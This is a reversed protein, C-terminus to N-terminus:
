SIANVPIVTDYVRETAKKAEQDWNTRITIIALSLTQVALACIIGLWLGKGGVHLVFALLVASPIGVLYYSGLNVYAGIKQWGCGRAIGSLVCQLGDLFSSVAILPVVNAVYEVVEQENSYAYGWVNRILILITALLLGEIVAITMVVCGALKAAAPRGAGLENSVRTSVFYLLFMSIETVLTHMRISLVSTELKPNPLLGSLLVVMEFSWLELCVMVTSPIALKLFYPINHFALGSFGTWTKSSSSSFKVYLILILANIWYSISNAVAAGRTGLGIKFVMLWCLPIHSLASIGSSMMMPFVVNQTTLFRNLCQVLGHAFLCPILCKAYKGAEASIQADQGLLKLIEGTNAWIVALPISVLSLIFMARQVHIGLMHYQKAGYSQGCFTDLASAMGLLVTFGTVSTFSVAMSAGSLPLEGLHGVFMISIMQLCYQLLSVSILPGALWLQKKVEEAILKRRINEYNIQSEDKSNVGDESKHILPSNLSSNRYEEEMM